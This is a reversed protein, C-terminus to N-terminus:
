KEGKIKLQNFAITRMDALHDKTAALQGAQSDASRTPRVGCRWLEDMLQVAQEISLDLMPKTSIVAGDEIAEFELPKAIDTRLGECVQRAHLQIGFNWDLQRAMFELPHRDGKM